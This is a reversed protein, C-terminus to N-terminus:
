DNLWTVVYCKSKWLMMYRDVFFDMVVASEIHLHGSRYHDTLFDALSKHYLTYRGGDASPTPVLSNLNRFVHSAEGPYSELFLCALAATVPAPVAWNSFPGYDDFRETKRDIEFSYKLLGRRFLVSLWLMKLHPNPDSSLIHSYLADLPAFPNTSPRTRPLQLVQDLLQDPNGEGEIFRGVTSVYIFQGSANALLTQRV